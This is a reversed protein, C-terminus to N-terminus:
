SRPPFLGEDALSRLHLVLNEVAHQLLDPGAHGVIVNGRQRLVFAPEEAALLAKEEPRRRREALCRAEDIAMQLRPRELGALVESQQDLVVSGAAEIRLDGAGDHEALGRVFQDVAEFRHLLRLGMGQAQELGPCGAGIDGVAVVVVHARAAQRRLKAEVAVPLAIVEHFPRQNAGILGHVDLLM